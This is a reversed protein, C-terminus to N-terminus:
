PRVVRERVVYVRIRGLSIRLCKAVLRTGRKWVRIMNLIILRKVRNVTQCREKHKAMVRIKAINVKLFPNLTGLVKGRGSYLIKGQDRLQALNGIRRPLIPPSELIKFKLCTAVCLNKDICPLQVRRLRNFKNKIKLIIKNYM